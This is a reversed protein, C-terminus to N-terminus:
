TKGVSVAFRDHPRSAFGHTESRSIALGGFKAVRTKSTTMTLCIRARDDTASVPLCGLRPSRDYEASDISRALRIDGPRRLAIRSSTLEGRLFNASSRAVGTEPIRPASGPGRGQRGQTVMFHPQTDVQVISAARHRSAVRLMSLLKGLNLMRLDQPVEQFRIGGGSGGKRHVWRRQSIHAHIRPRRYRSGGAVESEKKCTRTAASERRGGIIGVCPRFLGAFLAEFRVGTM